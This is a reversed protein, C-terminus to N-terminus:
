MACIAFWSGSVMMNLQDAGELVAPPSPSVVALLVLLLHAEQVAGVESMRVKKKKKERNLKSSQLGQVEGVSQPGWLRKGAM